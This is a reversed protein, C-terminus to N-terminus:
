KGRRWWRIWFPGPQEMLFKALKIQWPQLERSLLSASGVGDKGGTMPDVSSKRSPDYM